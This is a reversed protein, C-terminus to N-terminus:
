DANKLEKATDFAVLGRSVRESKMARRERDYAEV